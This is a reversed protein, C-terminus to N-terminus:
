PMKLVKIQHEKNNKAPLNTREEMISPFLLIGWVPIIFTQNMFEFQM